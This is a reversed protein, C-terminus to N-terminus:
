VPPAVPARFPPVTTVRAAAGPGGAAVGRRGAGPRRPDRARRARARRAARARVQKLYIVESKKLIKLAYYQKDQKFQVM